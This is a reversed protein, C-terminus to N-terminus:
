LVERRNPLGSECRKAGFMGFDKQLEQYRSAFSARIYLVPWALAMCEPKLSGVFFRGMFRHM